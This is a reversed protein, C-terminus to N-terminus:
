NNNSERLEKVTSRELENGVGDTLIIVTDDQMESLIIRIFEPFINGAVINSQMDQVIDTSITLTKINYEM